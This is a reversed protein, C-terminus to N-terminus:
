PARLGTPSALIPTSPPLPSLVRKIDIMPTHVHSAAGWKGCTLGPGCRKHLSQGLAIEDPDTVLTKDYLSAVQSFLDLSLLHPACLLAFRAFSSKVNVAWAGLSM